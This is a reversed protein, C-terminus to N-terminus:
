LCVCLVSCEDDSNLVPLESHYSPKESVPFGGRFAGGGPGADAGGGGGSEMREM